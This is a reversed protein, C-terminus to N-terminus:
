FFFHKKFRKRVQNYRAHYKPTTNVSISYGDRSWAFMLKPAGSARCILRGTGNVKGAAKLLVPSHDIEPKDTFNM